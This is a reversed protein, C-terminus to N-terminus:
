QNCCVYKGLCFSDETKINKSIDRLDRVPQTIFDRIIQKM